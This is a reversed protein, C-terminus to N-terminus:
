NMYKKIENLLADQPLEKNLFRKMVNILDRTMSERFGLKLGFQYCLEEEKQHIKGDVAMAFLLYYLISMRDQENPPAIGVYDDINSEVEDLLTPSLQLQRGVHLVFKREVKEITGDAAIMHILYAIIGKKRTLDKPDYVSM